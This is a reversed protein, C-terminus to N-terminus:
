TIISTKEDTVQTYKQSNKRKRINKKKRQNINSKFSVRKVKSPFDISYDYGCLQTPWINQDMLREFQDSSNAYLLFSKNQGMCSYQGHSLSIQCFKNINKIISLESPIEDDIINLRYPPFSTNTTTHSTTEKSDFRSDSSNFYQNRAKVLWGISVNSHIM